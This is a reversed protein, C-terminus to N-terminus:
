RAHKLETCSRPAATSNSPTTLHSTRHPLVSASCCAQHLAVAGDAANLNGHMALRDNDFRVLFIDNPSPSRKPPIDLRASNSFFSGSGPRANRSPAFITFGFGRDVRGHVGGMAQEAISATWAVCAPPAAWVSSSRRAISMTPPQLM